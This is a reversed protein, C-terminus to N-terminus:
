PVNERAMKSQASLRMGGSVGRKRWLAALNLRSRPQSINYGNAGVNSALQSQASLKRWSIESGIEAKLSMANERRRAM